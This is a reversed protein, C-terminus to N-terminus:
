ADRTRRGGLASRQVWLHIPAEVDRMSTPAVFKAEDDSAPETDLATRLLPKGRRNRDFPSYCRDTAADERSETVVRDWADLLNRARALIEAEAAPQGLVDAARAALAKAMAEAEERHFRLRMVGDPPTLEPVALRTMAVLVGALGRDLAPGSFPTVSGAEVHRYFSEHYARFREYHSRDRPKGLHLVTVVLGPKTEKRGVRSSAQIYENTTKPQGAVVMLGLRDIDVGVSIMNSALVVDVHKPDAHPKGLRDKAAAIRATSERSTLEVPSLGITRNRFWPHPGVHGVPRREEIRAVRSGVEDEVLRRMGGLERLSNFYGALTMYPDAPQDPKGNPDWAWGAGGLLSVYTRLLIAKMPRGGAAVGLYLRGPSERDVRAFFTEGDDVGPPPFLATARRAFVGHVQQRAHKVTATSALLKPKRLKGDPGPRSALREVATEYLGVLTGLPGTILHLEDQVILDPPLLAPVREAGMPLPGEHVGHFRRGTRGAVAGFLMATEARWPLMAFKDVTAVVFSPLERYISEDVFLVPLGDRSKGASFGCDLNECGVVVDTPHARNPVLNLSNRGLPKGCWPCDPLPFPSTAHTGTAARYETIRQAVQALTNATASRGVWLGISFRVDGLRKDGRRLVELACILTAARGLQDLTLLRLTYRLLVAVGLGRDPRDQRSLRRYLLAFAIVGLYAETKGGGTPFFILEVTERHPHAPDVVSPLNLLIFALQFLHWAPVKGDRYNEPRRRRASEAMARNALRFAELVLPDRALLDIGQAIRDRAHSAEELLTRQTERREESGPDIQRQGAIWVGYEEVLPSLLTRAEDGSAIAALRDMSTEASSQDNTVVRPVTAQPLFTTRAGVVRGDEVIPEVAVGHGVAYEMRERFQLDAVRDDWDSSNEGRRNPRAVLGAAFRVELRVQFAFREDQRGKAGPERRNVVFLALARTGPELGPAAAEELRGVLALGGSEPVEVGAELVAVDLPLFIPAPSRAVRQWRQRAGPPRREGPRPPAVSQLLYDAYSLRVEVRETAPGPPLLVSVGISSPLAGRRRPEPERAGFEAEDDDDGAGLQEDATPDEELERGLQPALFGTLYWRSPALPLVEEGGAPDFPGVLDAELAAVLHARAKESTRPSPM